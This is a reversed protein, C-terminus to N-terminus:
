SSGWASVVSRVASDIDTDGSLLRGAQLSAVGRIQQGMRQAVAHGADYAAKNRGQRGRGAAACEAQELIDRVANSVSNVTKM